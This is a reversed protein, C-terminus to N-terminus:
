SANGGLSMRDEMKCNEVSVDGVKAAVRVRQCGSESWGRAVWEVVGRVRRLV